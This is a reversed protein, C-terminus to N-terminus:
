RGVVFWLLLVLVLALAQLGVRTFMLRESNREDVKGGIGMSVVGGFLSGITAILLVVIFAILLSTM